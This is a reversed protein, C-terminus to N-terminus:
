LAINVQLVVIYGQMDNGSRLQVKQFRKSHTDFQMSWFDVV